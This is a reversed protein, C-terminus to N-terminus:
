RRRVRAQLARRPLTRWLARQPVQRPAPRPVPWARTRAVRTQRPTYARVAKRRAVRRSHVGFVEAVVASEFEFEDGVRWGDAREDAVAADECRSAAARLERSSAADGDILMLEFVPLLSAM